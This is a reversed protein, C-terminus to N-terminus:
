IIHKSKIKLNLKKTFTEKDFNKILMDYNSIKEDIYFLDKYVNITDHISKRKKYNPNINSLLLQSFTIILKNDSFGKSSLAHILKLFIISLAYNDWTKWSTILINIIEKDTKGILTKFEEICMKKYKEKFSDSFLSLASNSEISEKVIKNINELTLTEAENVLYNIIHVEIPWVYYDPAYIYFYDKIKNKISQIPISIGFDIILPNSTNTNYLINDSKLDFHIINVDILKQVSNLLYAYTELLTLLIEKKSKNKETLFNSFNSNDIFPLDMIKYQYDSDQKIVECKELTKKNIQAIDVSCSKVVPTFFFIM